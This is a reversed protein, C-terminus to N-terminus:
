SECLALEFRGELLFPKHSAASCDGSDVAESGSCDGSGVAEGGSMLMTQSRAGTAVLVLLLVTLSGAMSRGIRPMGGLLSAGLVRGLTAKGCSNSPTAMGDM